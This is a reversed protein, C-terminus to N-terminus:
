SVHATEVNCAEVVETTHGVVRSLERLVSRLGSRTLEDLERLGELEIAIRRVTRATTQLEALAKRARPTAPRRPLRDSRERIELAKRKLWRVSVGDDVVCRLLEVQQAENLGLVAAVHSPTIQEFDRIWPLERCVVHVGLADTLATKALPCDPHEALRRISTDKNRHRVKWARHDDKFFSGLVLEGIALTRTWGSAQVISRLEGAVRAILKSSVEVGAEAQGVM